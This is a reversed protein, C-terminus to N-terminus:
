PYTRMEPFRCVLHDRPSYLSATPTFKLTLRVLDSILGLQTTYGLIVKDLLQLMYCVAMIPM